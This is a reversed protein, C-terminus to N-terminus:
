SFKNLYIEIFFGLFARIKRKTNLPSFWEEELSADTRKFKMEFCSFDFDKLLSHYEEKIDCNKILYFTGRISFQEM